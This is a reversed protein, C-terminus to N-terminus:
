GEILKSNRKEIIQSFRKGVQEVNYINLCQVSKYRGGDWNRRQRRVTFRRFYGAQFSLWDQYAIVRLQLTRQHDMPRRADRLRRKM